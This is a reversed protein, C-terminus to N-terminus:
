AEGKALYGAVFAQMRNYIDRKSHYGPIISEIGGAENNMRHLSYGGYASDLHYNGINAILRGERRTYPTLPSNTVRNIREVVAEIDRKTIKM